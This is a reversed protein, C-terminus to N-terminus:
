HLVITRIQHSKNDFSLKYVKDQYQFDMRLNYNKDDKITVLSYHKRSFFIKSVM